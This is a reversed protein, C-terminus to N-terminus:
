GLAELFFSSIPLFVVKNLAFKPLRSIISALERDYSLGAKLSEVAGSM